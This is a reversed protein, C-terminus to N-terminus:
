HDAPEDVAFAIIDCCIIYSSFCANATWGHYPLVEIVRFRVSLRPIFVPIKVGSIDQVTVALRFKPVDDITLLHALMEREEESADLGDLLLEDLDATELNGRGLEFGDKEFGFVV